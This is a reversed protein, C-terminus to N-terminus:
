INTETCVACLLGAEDRLDGVSKFVIVVRLLKVILIHNEGMEICAIAFGRWQVARAPDVVVFLAESGFQM